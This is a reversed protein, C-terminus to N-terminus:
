VEFDYDEDLKRFLPKAKMVKKTRVSALRREEERKSQREIIRMEKDIISMQNLEYLRDDEEEKKLQEAKVEEM